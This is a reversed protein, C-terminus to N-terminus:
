HDASPSASPLCIFVKGTELAEKPHILFVLHRFDTTKNISFDMMIGFVM